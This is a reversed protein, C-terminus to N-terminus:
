QYIADSYEAVTLSVTNDTNPKISNVTWLQSNLEEVTAILYRSPLQVTDGNWINLQIDPIAATFGYKTDSRATAPYRLTPNGLSDTVLVYMSGTFAIPESTDFNNGARGTIYGQQQNSDYIDAIQVVSGVQMIGDEFVKANMKVRSYILRKTERLAREQAQYENRFGVIEIKNPNEAEQEVIAGNLVRYNIYTKNNTTPHVYSVQVGDYGGPLTAEYTMKFEDTKMNARNFVAAPYDVKQDRTFTLVGDDWYAIVSAANCIAQVRDGLSDNEDDFTYDFYGLREDTLSEAISYLGYLDISSVPQEGMILWTHAVADAFSRSARLTYDVAQTTLNYSITQRTVLANYKRDRSGLANETARVKVRVLTDTPHVVNTRVNVSHIEEVKLISADSSNDTRQFNIAYKGFGGTPTLKDTRYFVESSSKHPTGQHYTFTQQTGPVQNYDDDIKWITVKWDASKKGGLQVQTHLWLQASEVPSFFPGVVLAENDNLIFKTTNITATAPVDPPGILDGMTFTYWRVPNVVAGDNTEVASILTGSFDVDQTVNGAPTSYTVNITFTVAHPLVLGMFYDFEAQKIIKVAIQGGSYTGSVVTTATATEIPFNDSENQGPVEQGDVDDFGYGENITPIVEGPQYFQFEAGAMSGLSSESYRVSEYDYKGIGICMWETVYKLGGDTDSQRVYEFLSEQILDPFSRIQGYIDPKAKYVRATNTQGTLSNNPSDITNGGTNAIAPKPALFSFVAGVVKFIPSLIDGIIGKPQDFIQVTDLECLEFALEDDEGLKVGNRVILLDRHFTADNAALWDYFLTGNPVRCREKPTGPFRQLEILAM